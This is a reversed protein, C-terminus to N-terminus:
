AGAIRRLQARQLSASIQALGSELDGMAKRGGCFMGYRIRGPKIARASQVTALGTFVRGEHRMTVPVNQGITYAASCIVSFGTASVDVLPCGPHDDITATLGAIAATVRFCERSQASVPEGITTFGIVNSDRGEMIANIRIPQQSFEGKNTYYLLLEQEPKLNLLPCPLSASCAADRVTLVRAPHLVRRKGGATLVFFVDTNPRLV